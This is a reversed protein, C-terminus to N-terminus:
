NEVELLWPNLQDDLFIDFGLIEFFQSREDPGRGPRCAQYAHVLHPSTVLLTKVM